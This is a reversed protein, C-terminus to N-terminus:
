YTHKFFARGSIELPLDKHWIEILFNSIMISHFIVRVLIKLAFFFFILLILTTRKSLVPDM